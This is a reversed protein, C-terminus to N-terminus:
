EGVSRKLREVLGGHFYIGPERMGRASDSFSPILGRQKALLLVGLTGTVKLGMQEAVVRGIREDILLREAGASRAAHLTWKEGEDLQMLLPEPDIGAPSPVISIWDLGELSPVHIPGAGRM